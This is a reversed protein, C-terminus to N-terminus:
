VCEYYNKLNFEAMHRNAVKWPWFPEHRLRLNLGLRPTLRSTGQTDFKHITDIRQMRITNRLYRHQSPSSFSAGRHTIRGRM